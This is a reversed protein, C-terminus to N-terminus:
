ATGRSQEHLVNRVISALQMFGDLTLPKQFVMAAHKTAKAKDAGAILSSMVVVPTQAYNETSRLCKLIEEGSRKPLNMDVILLDLAPGKPNADLSRLFTIAEEGDHFVRLVCEVGHKKLALRVLEADELRDEALRIESPRTGAAIMAGLSELHPNPETM